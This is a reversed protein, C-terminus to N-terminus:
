RFRGTQFVAYFNDPYGLDPDYAHIENQGAHVGRLLFVGKADTVIDSRRSPSPSATYLAYVRAGEVPEGSPGVVRGGVEGTQAICQSFSAYCTIVVFCGSLVFRRSTFSQQM